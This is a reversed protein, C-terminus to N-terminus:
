NTIKLSDDPQLRADLDLSLRAPQGVRDSGADASSGIGDPDEVREDVGWAHPQDTVLRRAVADLGAPMCRCEGAARGSCELSRERVQQLVFVALGDFGM